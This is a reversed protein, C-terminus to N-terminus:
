AIHRDIIAAMEKMAALREAENAFGKGCNVCQFEPIVAARDTATRKM